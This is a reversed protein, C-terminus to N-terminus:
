TPILGIREMLAIRNTYGSFQGIAYSDGEKLMATCTKADVWWSNSPIDYKGRSGGPSHAGWSNMCLLAPREDDKCAVFKMCHAWSGSPDIFGDQDRSGEFGQNSCVAVPYGNAIADRAAEYSGILSAYGIKHEEAIPEYEDPLGSAGWRRARDGSYPGIVSRSISGGKRLATKAWLGTSGDRDRHKIDGYEIRSLAYIVEPSARMDWSYAESEGAMVEVCALLDLCGSFGWGVCDGIQQPGPDLDQGMIQRAAEYLLVTKGKGSGVLDPASSTFTDLSLDGILSEIAAQRPIWGFYWQEADNGTVIKLGGVSRMFEDSFEDSM